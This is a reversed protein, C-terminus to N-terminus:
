LKDITDAFNNTLVKSGRKTLHVKSDNLHVVKINENSIFGVNSDACMKCLKENIEGVKKKFRDNRCILGSVIFTAKSKAANSYVLNMISSAVEDASKSPKIDNTGVHLLVTHPNKDLTPKLYSAMCKTTAGPFSRVTVPRKDKLKEVIKWNHVDKIMSDGVVYVADSHKDSDISLEEGVSENQEVSSSFESNIQDNLGVEDSVNYNALNVLREKLPKIAKKDAITAKYKLSQQYRVNMLQLNLRDKHDNVKNDVTENLSDMTINLQENTESSEPVIIASKDFGSGRFISRNFGM